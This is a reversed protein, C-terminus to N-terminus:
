FDFQVGIKAFRALIISQPRQWTAYANSMTLVTSVNLANYLDLNFTARTRGVRVARALRLDLKVLNVTVTAGRGAALNRGLTPVVQANPVVYNAFIEPGSLSQLTSSVQLELRPVTYSGLAKFQTTPQETHCYPTTPGAYPGLVDTITWEPVKARIECVDQTLTGKDLGAQLLAGNLLRASAGIAFGNWMRVEKGYNKALTTINDTIGFKAQSVDYLDPVVFGGGNPLRPDSPATISFPSFDAATVARNDIINFNGYWRRFYTFDVSVRPVIQRQVGATFEWNYIRKGWGNLIEPDFNQEAVATGFNRNAVAGCEGNMNFDLLNCDPIYNSNADGWSRTTSNSLRNIPNRGGAIGGVTYQEVYRNLSGKVATKGDGFLDYAAALKPDLDKLSLGETKPFTVNRTPALPSPGVTQQPFSNKFWDWRLGLNLTLRDVTWKDQVYAGFQHNIDVRFNVPYARMTIQNPMGNNFRYSVPNNDFDLENFHGFIDGVGVKFAHAGTIYSVSARYFMTYSPRNIYIERSRFQRGTSQELVNVMQPSLGPVRNRIAREVSHKIAGEILLNNNVPSSADATIQRELPFYHCPSAEYAYLTTGTRQAPASSRWGARAQRIQLGPVARTM